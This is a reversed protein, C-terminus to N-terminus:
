ATVGVVAHIGGERGAKAGWGNRESYHITWTVGCQSVKSLTDDELTTTSGMGGTEWGVGAISTAAVRGV